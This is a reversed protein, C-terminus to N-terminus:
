KYIRRKNESNKNKIVRMISLNFDFKSKKNVFSILMFLGYIFGIILIVNGLFHMETEYNEELYSISHNLEHFRSFNLKKWSSKLNNVESKM